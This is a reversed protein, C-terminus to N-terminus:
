VRENSKRSIHSFSTGEPVYLWDILPELDTIDYQKLICTIHPEINCSVKVEDAFTFRAGVGQITMPGRESLVIGKTRLLADAFQHNLADAFAALGSRTVPKTIAISWARIGHTHHASTSTNPKKFGSTQPNAKAVLMSPEAIIQAASVVEAIPNVQAITEKTSDLRGGLDLKSVVVRDALVLQRMAEDYNELTEQGAISDFVTIIVGPTLFHSLLSSRRVVELIPGPDALGTTEIVIRNFVPLEGENARRVLDMLTEPLSDVVACCLCGGELLAIQDSQESLLMHDLGIEGLENVVVATKEFGGFALLRKLLTTKGSGLFGTLIDVSIKNESIM